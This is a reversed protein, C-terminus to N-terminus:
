VSIKIGVKPLSNSAATPTVIRNDVSSRAMERGTKAITACNNDTKSSLDAFIADSRLSGLPEVRIENNFFDVEEEALVLTAALTDNGGLITDM